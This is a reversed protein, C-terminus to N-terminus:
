RTRVEKWMTSKFVKLYLRCCWLASHKWWRKDWSSPYIDESDLITKCALKSRFHRIMYLFMRIGSIYLTLGSLDKKKLWIEYSRKKSLIDGNKNSKYLYKVQIYGRETKIGFLPHDEDHKRIEVNLQREFTGFPGSNNDIYKINKFQNHIKSFEEDSLNRSYNSYLEGDPGWMAIQFTQCDKNLCEYTDKFSVEGNPNCIHEDLTELQEQGTIILENRCAPCLM